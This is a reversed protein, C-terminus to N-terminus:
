ARELPRAEDAPPAATDAVGVADNPRRKSEARLWAAFDLIQQRDAESLSRDGALKEVLSRLGAM